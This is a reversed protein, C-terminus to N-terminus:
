PQVGLYYAVARGVGALFVITGGLVLASIYGLVPVKGLDSRDPWDGEFIRWALAGIIFLIAAIGFMVGIGILAYFLFNM